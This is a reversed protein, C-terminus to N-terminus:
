QALLDITLAATWSFNEAGLGKGDIPSFYEYPGASTVMAITRARLDAAEVKYGYRELGDIILWNTNVWTPGQWYREADFYKSSLPVSPVPHHLWFQKHDKLLGVLEAAREKSISGAYLPMLAGISPEKILKHTIFDRSYYQKTGTDYLEKIAEETHKMNAVLEAPLKYKLFSAINHLQTNNRILISNFMVDETAFLTRHLIKDIDYHKRRLRRVVDWLLLAEMNSIRQGPNVRRTDRRIFNIFPDLHLKEIMAIWWPRSHEYLQQVWPPTNDMGVENPHIQLTLGEKHPDREAYLWTHYAVLPDYMYHYFERRDTANMKAGVKVVADALVPPQTIGSTSLKDPAFPSLWSRWAERELRYERGKSFIMHPMMGNAWQGHVLNAVELAARQPDEHRLGIAVFCSDWLWQHPYLKAPSTHNGRDNEKLVSLCLTRLDVPTLTPGEASYDEM